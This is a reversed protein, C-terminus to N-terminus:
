EDKFHKSPPVVAAAGPAIVNFFVNDYFSKNAANSLYHEGFANDPQPNETSSHSLYKQGVYSQANIGGNWSSEAKDFRFNEHPGAFALKSLTEDYRALMDSLFRGKVWKSQAPTIGACTGYVPNEMDGNWCQEKQTKVFRQIDEDTFLLGHQYLTVAMEVGAVYWGGNPDAAIWSRWADPKDQKIDWKGAPVWSMWEYHGEKLMLHSKFWTGIQLARNMYKPKKTVRYLRLSGDLMLSLKEFSLSGQGPIPFDLGRYLGGQKGMDVFHGRADWKPFLHEEALKLLGDIDAQHEKAYTENSRAQEVYNCIISIARFNMQLEDILLGPNDKLQRPKLALGYWGLYEDHQKSMISQYKGFASHFLDLYKTDGTLQYSIPLCNLQRFDVWAFMEPSKHCKKKITAVDVKEAFEVAHRVFNSLVHKDHDTLNQKIFSTDDQGFLVTTQCIILLMVLIFRM